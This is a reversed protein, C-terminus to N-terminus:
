GHCYCFYESGDVVSCHCDCCTGGCWSAWCPTGPLCWGVAYSCSLWPDGYVCSSGSCTGFCPGTEHPGTCCAAAAAEKAVSPAFAALGALLGFLRNLFVNVRISTGGLYAFKVVPPLATAQM